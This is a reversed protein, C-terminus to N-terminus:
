NGGTSSGPPQCDWCRGMQEFKCVPCIWYTHVHGNEKEDFREWQHNQASDRCFIIELLHELAPQEDNMKKLIGPRPKKPEPEPRVIQLHDRKKHKAVLQLDPVESVDLALAGDSEKRKGRM